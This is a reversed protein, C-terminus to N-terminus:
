KKQLHSKSTLVKKKTDSRHHVRQAGGLVVKMLLEFISPTTIILPTRNHELEKLKELVKVDKKM